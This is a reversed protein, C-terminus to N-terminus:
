PALHTAFSAPAMRPRMLVPVRDVGVGGWQIEEVRVRSPLDDSLFARFRPDIRGFLRGKWGAFGAPPALAAADYGEVWALWDDGFRKGSLAQLTGVVMATDANNLMGVQGARLVEMLVAVFRSDHAAVITTVAERASSPTSILADMLRAASSDPRS